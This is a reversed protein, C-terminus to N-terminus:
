RGRVELAEVRQDSRVNDDGSGGARAALVIGTIAGATVVGGVVWVWSRKYWPRAQDASTTPAGTVGLDTASPNALPAVPTSTPSAPEELRPGKAPEARASRLKDLRSRVFDRNDASPYALLYADYASIAREAQGDGDAARGINFLLKPHHSLAYSHEFAALAEAFRGHEYAAAGQEFAARAAPDAEAAAPEARANSTAELLALTLALVLPRLSPLM